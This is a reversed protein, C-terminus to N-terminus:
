LAVSAALLRVWEGIRVLKSWATKEVDVEIEVEVEVQVLEIEVLEVQVLEVEGDIGPRRKDGISTGLAWSNLGIKWRHNAM